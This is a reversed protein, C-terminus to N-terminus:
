RAYGKLIFKDRFLYAAKFVLYTLVFTTIVSGFEGMNPMGFLINIYLLLSIISNQPNLGALRWLGSFGLGIIFMGIIVGPIGFNWYLEGTATMGVSVTAKEPSPAFGLYYTFWASQSVASKGPWFIRPILSYALFAMTEGYRFGYKDVQTSLYAVAIPDFSRSLYGYLPHRDRFQPDIANTKGELVTEVSSQVNVQRTSVYNARLEYSLPYVFFFYLLAFFVGTVVLKLIDVKYYLMFWALPFFAFMMYAKSTTSINLVFAFVSGIFLINRRTIFSINLFNNPNFAIIALATIMSFRFFSLLGGFTAFYPTFLEFILGFILFSIFTTKNIFVRTNIKKSLLKPRNLQLGVHLAFSGLTFIFFGFAVSPAYVRATAFNIGGDSALVTASYIASLGLNVSYWIFYFSIPNFILKDRKTELIGILIYILFNVVGGVLVAIIPDLFSYLVIVILLGVFHLRITLTKDIKLINQKM